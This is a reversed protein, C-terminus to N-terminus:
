QNDSDRCKFNYDRAICWGYDIKNTRNITTYCRFRGGKTVRFRRRALLLLGTAGQSRRHDLHFGHELVLIYDIPQTEYERDLSSVERKMFGASPETIGPSRDLLIDLSVVFMADFSQSIPRPAFRTRYRHLRFIDNQAHFPFSSAPASPFYPIEEPLHIYLIISLGDPTNEHFVTFISPFRFREFRVFIEFVRLRVIAPLDIDHVANYNLPDPEDVEMRKNIVM